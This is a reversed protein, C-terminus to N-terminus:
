RNMATLIMTISSHDGMLTANVGNINVKIVQMQNSALKLMLSHTTPKSWCWPDKMIYVYVTQNDLRPASYLHGYVKYASEASYFTKFGYQFITEQAINYNVNDGFCYTQIREDTHYLVGELVGEPIHDESLQWYILKNLEEQSLTQNNM